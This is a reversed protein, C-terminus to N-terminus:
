SHGPTKKQEYLRRAIAEALISLFARTPALPTPTVEVRQM